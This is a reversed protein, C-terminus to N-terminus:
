FLVYQCWNSSLFPVGPDAPVSVVAIVGAVAVVVAVVPLGALAPVSAVAPVSVSGPVGAIAPLSYCFHSCAPFLPIGAVATVCAVTTVIVICTYAASNFALVRFLILLQSCGSAWNMSARAGLHKRLPEVLFAKRSYWPWPLPISEVLLCFM